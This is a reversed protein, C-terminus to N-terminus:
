DFPSRRLSILGSIAIGIGSHFRERRTKIGSTYYQFKIEIGTGTDSPGSGPLLFM